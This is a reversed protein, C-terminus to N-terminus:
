GIKKLLIGYQSQVIKKGFIQQLNRFFKVLKNKIIKKLKYPLKNKITKFIKFIM